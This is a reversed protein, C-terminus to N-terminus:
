TLVKGNSDIYNQIPSQNLFTSDTNFDSTPTYGTETVTPVASDGSGTTVGSHIHINYATVFDNIYSELATIEACLDILVKNTNGGNIAATTIKAMAGTFCDFAGGLKLQRTFNTSNWTASEGAVLGDLNSTDAQQNTFGSVFADYYGNGSSTYTCSTNDPPLSTYGYPQILPMNDVAYGDLTNYNLTCSVVPNGTGLNLQSKTIYGNFSSM